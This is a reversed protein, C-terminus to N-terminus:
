LTNVMRTFLVQLVLSSANEHGRQEMRLMVHDADDRHFTQIRDTGERDM